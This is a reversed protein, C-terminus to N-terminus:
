GRPSTSPRLAMPEPRYRMRCDPAAGLVSRHRSDADSRRGTLQYLVPRVDFSVANPQSTRHRAKPLPCESKAERRHACGACAEIQADCEDVRAQYFDYLALAQTLAFVHEPQYNGVLAARVTELAPRAACTACRALVQPDRQGDVIARIIKMGTVGTVDSVVHHLQLNMFTLAKQMHQIHAAAYDLHRERLRLYVRLAAIDRGPRFSARLLGCAHLRQLWQADNVDSKRGPVARAERANALIVEIGRSELFKTCRCGTCAPPNWRSPRSAWRWSGTRWASFIVPSLRFRRCRSM